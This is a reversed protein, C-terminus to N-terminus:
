SKQEIGHQIPNFLKMSTSKSRSLAINLTRLLILIAFIKVVKAEAAKQTPLHQM